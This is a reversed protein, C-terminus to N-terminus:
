RQAFRVKKRLFFAYSVSVSSWVFLLAGCFGLPRTRAGPVEPAGWRGVAGVGGELRSQLLPFVM